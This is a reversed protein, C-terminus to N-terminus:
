FRIRFGAQLSFGSLDFKPERVATIEGGVVPPVDSLTIMSVEGLTGITLNVLYIKGVSPDDAGTSDRSGGTATAFNKFRAYRGVAEVFFGMRRSFAYEFGMSGHFGLNGSKSASLYDEDWGAPSTVRQWADFKLGAYYAGGANATLSVKGSLPFTLFVGLRIPIASITPEATLTVEETQTFTALSRRSGRLYGAGVGIGVKPTLQFVIDGGFDVGGHLPSYGGTVTGLGQAQYLEILEFYFDSGTNIDGAAMYSYGGYLKISLRSIKQAQEATQQDTAAIMPSALALLGAVFVASMLFAFPRTKIRM